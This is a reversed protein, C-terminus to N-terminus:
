TAKRGTRLRDFLMPMFAAIVLALAMVDNPWPAAVYEIIPDRKVKNQAPDRAFYVDAPAIQYPWNDEFETMWWNAPGTAEPLKLLELTKKRQEATLPNAWAVKGTWRQEKTLEGEYRADGIFYIRLLRRKKGLADAASASEPERYPFLPRESKFTLRLAGAAVNKNTKNDQNKAVKLATIMWHQEVYPKAWREVAPSFEYGHEKLWKVLDDAGEAKLVVAHFGAVEKTLMVEVAPKPAGDKKAGAAFKASDSCGCGMGGSPRSVKKIEPETLKQLYPFADNGSEELEPQTPTPILFAFDEADSAFTAKRIFHETKNEADWLIVVTQDANVVPKGSPGAPCCAPAPGSFSAIVIAASLIFAFCLRLSM